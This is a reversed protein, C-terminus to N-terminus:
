SYLSTSSDTMRSPPARSRFYDPDPKWVEGDGPNAELFDDLTTRLLDGLWQERTNMLYRSFHFTLARNAALEFRGSEVAEWASCQAFRIEKLSQVKKVAFSSFAANDFSLTQLLPCSLITVPIAPSSLGADLSCRRLFCFDSLHVSFSGRHTGVSLESISPLDAGRLTLSRDSISPFHLSLTELSEHRLWTFGEITLFPSCIRLDCLFPCGGLITAGHYESFDSDSSLNLVLDTLLWKETKPAFLAHFGNELCLWTLSKQYSWIHALETPTPNGSISLSSVSPFHRSPCFETWDTSLYVLQPLVPRSSRSTDEAVAIWGSSGIIDVAGIERLTPHEIVIPHDGKLVTNRISLSSLNQLGKLLLDLNSRDFSFDGSIDLDRLNPVQAVLALCFQHCEEQSISSLNRSKSTRLTLSRLQAPWEKPLLLDSVEVKLEIKRLHELRILPPLGGAGINLQVCDFLGADNFNALNPCIEIIKAQSGTPAARCSLGVLAFRGPWIALLDLLFEGGGVEWEPFGISEFPPSRALVTKVYESQSSPVVIESLGPQSEIIAKLVEISIKGREMDLSKVSSFSKWFPNSEATIECDRICLTELSM